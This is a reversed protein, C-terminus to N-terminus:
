TKCWLVHHDTAVGRTLLTNTCSQRRGRSRPSRPKPGGRASFDYKCWWTYKRLAQRCFIYLTTCSFPSTPFLRPGGGGRLRLQPGPQHKRANLLGIHRAQADLRAWVLVVGGNRAPIETCPNDMCVLAPASFHRAGEHLTHAPDQAGRPPREVEAESGLAHLFTGYSPCMTSFKTRVSPVVTHHLSAITLHLLPLRAAMSGAAAAAADLPEMITSLVQVCAHRWDM